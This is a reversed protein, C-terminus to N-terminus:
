RNDYEADRENFSGEGCLEIAGTSIIYFAGANRLQESFRSTSAPQSGRFVVCKVACSFYSIRYGM